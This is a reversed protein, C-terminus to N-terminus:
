NVFYDASIQSSDPNSFYISSFLWCNGRGAQWYEAMANSFSMHNCVVKGEWSNLNACADICDEPTYAILQTITVNGVPQDGRGSGVYQQGCQWTFTQSSLEDSSASLGSSAPLSVVYTPETPCTSNVYQVKSADYVLSSPPSSPCKSSHNSLAGGVGGGVAGGVVIATVIAILLGSIWSQAIWPRRYNAETEGYPLPPRAAAENPPLYSYKQDVHTQGYPYRSQLGEHDHNVELGETM